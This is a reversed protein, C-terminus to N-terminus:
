NAFLISSAMNSVEFSIDCIIAILWKSRKITNRFDFQRVAMLAWDQCRGTRQKKM